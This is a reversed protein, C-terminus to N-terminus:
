RLDLNIIYKRGNLKFRIEEKTHSAIERKGLDFEKHHNPCLILINWPTELGKERKPKIHAAEVYFHGDKKLIQKTCIQCKFDRIFKLDAITKNDRKYTRGNLTISEPDTPKHNKLNQIIEERLLNKRKLLNEIIEDQEKIDEDFLTEPRYSKGTLYEYISMLKKLELQRIGSRTLATIEDGVVAKALNSNDIIRFGSQGVLRNTKLLSKYKKDDLPIPFLMSLSEDAVINALLINKEFGRYRSKVPERLIEANGYLGVIEGKKTNYNRSYFIVWGGALFKKPPNTWQVYGNIKGNRDVTKDFKFNLSEHGPYKRSYSHGAQPNKYVNRWGDPNWTINAIIGSKM